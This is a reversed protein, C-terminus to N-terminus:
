IFLTTRWTNAFVAIRARESHSYFPEQHRFSTAWCRAARGPAEKFRLDAPIIQQRKEHTAFGTTKGASSEVAHFELPGPLPMIEIVYDETSV